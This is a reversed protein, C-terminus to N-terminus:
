CISTSDVPVRPHAPISTVIEVKRKFFKPLWTLSKNLFDLLEQRPISEVNDAGNGSYNGNSQFLFIKHQFQIYDDKNLPTHGTKVQTGAVEGSKPNVCLYEFTMTDGKRSHPVVYWGKSQLYLFVLDEVEEANLMMFIDSYKAKDIEYTEHGNLQNWLYRSYERAKDDAVKQITRTARFCAVVKGPVEDIEVRKLECRFVNTIDIDLRKCEETTWYEWGSLVRALYYHGSPDRTWVLDDPNVEKHIYNCIQLNNYTQSAEKYFEDWNKTNEDSPTRWGVGLIGERVCYDFTTRMDASGGYPRIHIRFINM